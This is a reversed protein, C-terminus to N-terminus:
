VEFEVFSKSLFSFTLRGPIDNQLSRVTSRVSKLHAKRLATGAARESSSFWFKFPQDVEDNESKEEGSGIRSKAIVEVVRTDPNHHSGCGDFVYNDATVRKALKESINFESGHHPVKLVEVHLGEGEAITGSQELGRIVEDEHGDGTLLVRKGDEELLLMLSALNPTTVSGRDGLEDAAAILPAALDVAGSGLLAAEDLRAQDQIENVVDQNAELWEKWETRLNELDQEFPGIVTVTLGGVQFPDDGPRAYMLRRDSRPNLPIGLQEAGIRRSLKLAQEEGNAINQYTHIHRGLEIDPHYSLTSAMAALVDSIPGADDPIMEGFSNHWIEGVGPPEASEPRTAPSDGHHHHVIWRAHNDMLELIGEIHDKDIHSVCVVDLQGGSERIQGLTPAVHTQFRGKLGGDLLIRTDDNGTILLCDGDPSQFLRLRM